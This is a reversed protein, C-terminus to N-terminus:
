CLSPCCCRVAECRRMAKELMADFVPGLDGPSANVVRLIEATATQQCDLALALRVARVMRGLRSEPGFMGAVVDM